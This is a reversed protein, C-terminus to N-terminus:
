SETGGLLDLERVDIEGNVKGVGTSNIELKPIGNEVSLIRQSVINGSSEFILEGLMTIISRFRLLKTKDTVSLLVVM